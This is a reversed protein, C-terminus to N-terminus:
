EVRTLKRTVPNPFPGNLGSTQTLLLTNKGDMKFTFVQSTNRMANPNKATVITAMLENGKIDYTGANATFPGFADAREKDTAGQQPLEPRPADSTVEEISYYRPTFIFLSPQPSTNTRANPGTITLESVRWVGIVPSKASGSQATGVVQAIGVLVVVIATALLRKTIVPHGKGPDFSSAPYYRRCDAEATLSRCCSEPYM